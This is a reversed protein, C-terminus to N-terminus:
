SLTWGKDTAIAKQEDTLKALNTTGFTIRGQSSTPTEGNGAFDYLGNIISMLSDVTLLTSESFGFSYSGKCNYGFKLDALSSCGYFSYSLNTIKGMDWNSLDLSKLSSCGNFTSAMTTLGTTVIDDMPIAVLSKCSAFMEDIKTPTGWSIDDIRKLDNCNKCIRSCDKKHLLNLGKISKINKYWVDAREIADIFQWVYDEALEDYIYLFPLYVPYNDSMENPVLENGISHLWTTSSYDLLEMRGGKYNSWVIDRYVDIGYYNTDYLKIYGQPLFTVSVNHYTNHTVPNELYYYEVGQLVKYLGIQYGDGDYETANITKYNGNFDYYGVEVVSDGNTIYEGGIVNYNSNLLKVSNESLTEISPYDVYPTIYEGGNINLQQKYEGTEPDYYYHNWLEKILFTNSDRVMTTKNVGNIDLDFYRYDLNNANYDDIETTDEVDTIVTIKNWGKGSDSLEETTTNSTIIMEIESLEVDQKVDTKVYVTSLGDYGADPVVVDLGNETITVKKQQLLGTGSGGTTEVKGTNFSIVM